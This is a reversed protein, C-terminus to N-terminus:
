EDVDTSKSLKEYQPYLKGYDDIKKMIREDALSNFSLNTLIRVYSYLQFLLECADSGHVVRPPPKDMMAIEYM